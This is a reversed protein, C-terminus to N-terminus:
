TNFDESSYLVRNIKEIIDQVKPDSLWDVSECKGMEFAKVIEDVSKGSTNVECVEGFTERAEQAVVGLLEAEVNEAVKREPWGRSSLEEWVESPNRRLVLVKNAFPVLSPYITEVVFNGSGIAERLSRKLADEDIVYSLSEEDYETFLKREIAFTSVNLYSFGYKKALAKAVTSKGTGPTGTVLIIM